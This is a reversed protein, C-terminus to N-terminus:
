KDKEPLIKRNKILFQKGKKGPKFIVQQMKEIIINKRKLSCAMKDFFENSM